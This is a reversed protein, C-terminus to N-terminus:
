CTKLRRVSTSLLISLWTFSKFNYKSLFSVCVCTCPQRHVCLVVHLQLQHYSPTYHSAITSFQCRQCVSKVCADTYCRWWILFIEDLHAWICTCTSRQSRFNITTFFLLPKFKHNERMMWNFAIYFIWLKRYESHIQCFMILLVWDIPFM